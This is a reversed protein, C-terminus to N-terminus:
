FSLFTLLTQSAYNAAATLKGIKLAAGARRPSFSFGGLFSTLCFFCEIDFNHLLGVESMKVARASIVARRFRPQRVKDAVSRKTYKSSFVARYEYLM